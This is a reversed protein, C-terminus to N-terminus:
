AIKVNSLPLQQLKRLYIHEYGFDDLLLNFGANKLKLINEQSVKDLIAYEAFELLIMNIHLEYEITINTLSNLINLTSLQYHSLNISLSVEEPIM